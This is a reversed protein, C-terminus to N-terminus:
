RDGQGPQVDPAKMGSAYTWKTAAPIRLHARAYRTELRIPFLGQLTIPVDPQSVDPVYTVAKQATDRAGVRGYCASADTLPRLWEIAVRNGLDQDPTEIIAELNDGTFLGLMHTTPPPGGGGVFAALQAIPGVQYSDLPQTLQDLSGGIKATTTGAYGTVWPLRTGTAGTVSNPPVTYLDVQAPSNSVIQIFFNGNYPSVTLPYLPDAPGPSPGPTNWIEITNQIQAGVTGLNYNNPLQGVPATNTGVSLSSLTLRVGSGTPTQAASTISIQPMAISDLAGNDVTLGPKTMYFMYELAQNILLTWRDLAWDYILVKDALNAAGTQSKYMWYVRTSAPDTTAIFLQLNDRDVDNFFTRDVREKGIGTIAGGQEIKKLGQPSCFFIKDGATVSSYQGFIGDLSAVRLINFVLVAGFALSMMRISSDQFIVGYQDSGRIDHVVGGDPMDQFNALGLAPIWNEPLAYDCWGVRFPFGQIGTLVVFQNIVAVHSANGGLNAPGAPNGPLDTFYTSSQHLIYQQPPSNGQVAIIRNNYQVMQWNDTSVPASYVNQAVTGPAAPTGGNILGGSTTNTATSPAFLFGTGGLGMAGTPVTLQDGTVYGSGGFGPSIVVQDVAGGVAVRIAAVAGGGGKSSGILGLTYTGPTYGSGGTVGGTAGAGVVYTQPTIIGYGSAALSAGITAQKSVCQWQFTSNNLLWLDTDTAAFIYVLSSDVPDRAFIAGSCAAPLSQTLQQWSPVPGYGDGRALVNSLIITVNTDIASLDPAWTEFKLLPGEEMAM